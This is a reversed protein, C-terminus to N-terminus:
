GSTPSTPWSTVATPLVTVLAPPRTFGFPGFPAAGIGPRIVLRTPPEVAVTWLPVADPELEVFGSPPRSDPSPDVGSPESVPATPPAVPPEPLLGSAGTM